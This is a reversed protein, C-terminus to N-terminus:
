DESTTAIALQCAIAVAADSGGGVGDIAIEIDRAGEEVGDPTDDSQDPRDLDEIGPITAIGVGVFKGGGPKTGTDEEDYDCGDEFGEEADAGLRIFVNGIISIAPVSKKTSRWRM